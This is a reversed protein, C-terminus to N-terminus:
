LQVPTILSKGTLANIVNNAALVGMETRTRVTASGIHPLVVTSFLIYSKPIFRNFM